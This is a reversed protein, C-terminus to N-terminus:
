LEEIPIIVNWEWSNRSFHQIWKGTVLWGLLPHSWGVFFSSVYGIFVVFVLGMMPPIHWYKTSPGPPRVGRVPKRLRWPSRFDQPVSWFWISYASRTDSHKVCCYTSIFLLIDQYQECMVDVSIWRRLIWWFYETQISATPRTHYAVEWCTWRATWTCSRKLCFRVSFFGITWFAMTFLPIYM